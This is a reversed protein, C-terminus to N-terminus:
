SFLDVDSMKSLPLSMLARVVVAAAASNESIAPAACAAGITKVASASPAPGPMGKGLEAASAKDVAKRGGDGPTFLVITTEHANLVILLTADEGCRRISTTPLRGDLMMGFSRLNGDQM